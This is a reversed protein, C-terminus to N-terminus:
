MTCHIKGPRAVIYGYLFVKNSAAAMAEPNLTSVIPTFLPKCGGTHSELELSDLARKKGSHVGAHTHYVYKCM